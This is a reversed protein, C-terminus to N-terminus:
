FILCSAIAKPVECLVFSSTSCDNVFLKTYNTNLDVCREKGNNNPHGAKWLSKDVHTGDAWHFQGSTQDINSGSLWVWNSAAIFLLPFDRIAEVKAAEKSLNRSRLEQIVAQVQSLTNLSAHDIERELCWDRAKFWNVKFYSM